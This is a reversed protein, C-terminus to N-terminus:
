RLPRLDRQLRFASVARIRKDLQFTEGGAHVVDLSSLRLDRMAIRMSKNVTPATTRKIEFGLRRAGRVVLLDLEAGQHTAWFFSEGPGAGIKLLIENLLFGEWSAGLKPHGELSRWDSIGHLTHLLGSDALYVKPARVQRKALSEHWPQLQRVMFTETLLNLYTKTTTAAVGLSSAVASSNWTQGHYHATMTWFRRMVPAPIRPSALNPLDREVFTRIFQERWDRSEQENRALFSRPFGGRLWLRELAADGVEQACFGPLEVYAIRGALTESSQRLLEPSTSGLVLFRPTRPRDAVVRLAAFLEPRRQVEDIVVLGRRRLLAPIPDKLRALDAPDELDLRESQGRSAGAYQLALTTKGVQRPGLLAVIRHSRHLRRITRLHRKRQLIM